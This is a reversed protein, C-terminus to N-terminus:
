PKVSVTYVGGEEAIIVMDDNDPAAKGGGKCTVAAKAIGPYRIRCIGGRRATVTMTLLKGNEWECGVVFNGRAVLGDYSGAAWQSPLAPLPEIVDGDAAAASQLLMEAVGAAGGYNGDIQFPPHTDWLNPLTGTQLLTKYLRFASEGDQARAWANLRHAMAWGTSKDGREALTVRAARIWEPTGSHITQGPSLAALQSIHRHNYQGIEGYKSEERYEKIQGSEGIIVPDLKSLQERAITVTKDDIGLVEAAAICDRHNEYIM